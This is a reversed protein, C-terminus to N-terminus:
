VHGEFVVADIKGKTGQIERTTSITFLCPTEHRIRAPAAPLSGYWISNGDLKKSSFFFFNDFSKSTFRDAFKVRDHGLPCNFDCVLLTLLYQVSEILSFTLFDCGPTPLASPLRPLPSSDSPPFAPTSM